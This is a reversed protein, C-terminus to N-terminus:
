SATIEHSIIMDALRLAQADKRIDVKATSDRLAIATDHSHLTLSMLVHNAAYYGVTTEVKQWLREKKKERGIVFLVVWHSDGPPVRHMDYRYILWRSYEIHIGLM